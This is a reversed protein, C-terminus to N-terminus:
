SSRRRRRPARRRGNRPSCSRPTSPSACCSREGPRPPILQSALGALRGWRGGTSSASRAPPTSCTWGSASCRTSLRARGSRPRSGQARVRWSGMRLRLQWLHRDTATHTHTAEPRDTHWGRKSQCAERAYRPTQSRPIEIYIVCIYAGVPQWGVLRCSVPRPAARGERSNRHFDIFDPRKEPSEDGHVPRLGPGGGRRAAARGGEESWAARPLERTSRSLSKAWEAGTRGRTRTRQMKERGINWHGAPRGSLKRAPDPLREAAAARL